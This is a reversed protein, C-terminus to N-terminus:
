GGVMDLYCQRRWPGMALIDAERWGYASALTHVERLIRFAWADIESWFFSVIDFIAQWQHGCQPCSLALQVDAQPDAQSMREEVAEAIEKPLQAASKEEGQHKAALLCRQFLLQTSAALDQSGAIAFLDLSNPLRFSVEHDAICLLLAAGPEATSSAIKARIDSVDFTLELRESCGPCTTLSNLQPGFTWERLTLLRADREGISLNYLTGPPIDPSAAALLTLARQLPPQALGLEWVDVMEAASLGQM